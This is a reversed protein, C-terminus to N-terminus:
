AASRETSPGMWRFPRGTLEVLLRDHAAYHERLLAATPADITERYHGRNYVKDQRIERAELGLFAFVQQCVSNTDDFLDASDLM